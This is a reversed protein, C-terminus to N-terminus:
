FSYAQFVYLYRTNVGPSTNRVFEGKFFHAFGAGFLFGQWHQTAFVDLEQGIHRGAKGLPDRALPRGLNNYLADTPSALWSNDYMVNLATQKRIHWSNLWRLNHINRWGFLDAHGFRDHNAPYLQDFTNDRRRDDSGSAYKYEVSVDLPMSIAIRRDIKSAGGFARHPLAGTKGTQVAAELSYNLKLPLPGTLRSGFTNTGLRGPGTFGGPINQDHRLVYADLTASRLVNAISNYTGWVRDGLVPVNFEDPRVKVVSVLLLEVRVRSLRYYLRATDFTRSTNSWQPSGILRGEGYTLMQRGVISGFGRRQDPFLEVYGEQLDVKDRASSPAPTGYLPARSDQLMGSFRLWKVPEYKAGFRTRVLPNELDPQAGFNVGTRTELRLRFEFTLQLREGTRRSIESSLQKGPDSSDQALIASAVLAVGLIRALRLRTNQQLFCNGV